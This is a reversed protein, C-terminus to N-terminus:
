EWTKGAALLKQNVGLTGQIYRAQFLATDIAEALDVSM